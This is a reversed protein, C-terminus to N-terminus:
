SSVGTEVREVCSYFGTKDCDSFASDTQGLARLDHQFATFIAKDLSAGSFWHDPPPGLLKARELFVFGRYAATNFLYSRLVIGNGDEPVCMPTHVPNYVFAAMSHGVDEHIWSLWVMMTRAFRILVDKTLTDAGSFTNGVIATPVTEREVARKLAPLFTQLDKWWQQLLADNNFDVGNKNIWETVLTEFLRQVTLARYHWKWFWTTPTTRNSFADDMNRLRGYNEMDLEDLYLPNDQLEEQILRTQETSNLPALSFEAADYEYLLRFNYNTSQVARHIFPDFLRRVPHKPNSAFADVTIAQFAAALELHLDKVHVVLNTVGLLSAIIAKEALRWGTLKAMHFDAEVQDDDFVTYTTGNWTLSTTQLRQDQGNYQFTAKGGLGIYGPIPAYTEFRSLDVAFAGNGHHQLHVSFVTHTMLIGLTDTTQHKALLKGLVAVGFVGNSAYKIEDPQLFSVGNWGVALLTPQDFPLRPTLARVADMPRAGTSRAAAMAGDIIEEGRRHMENDECSPVRYGTYYEKFVDPFAVGYQHQAMAHFSTVIMREEKQPPYWIKHFLPRNGLLPFGNVFNFFPFVTNMAHNFLFASIRTLPSVSESAASLVMGACLLLWLVPRMGTNKARADNNDDCFM